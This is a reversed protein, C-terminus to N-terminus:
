RLRCSVNIKTKRDVQYANTVIILTGFRQVALAIIGTYNGGFGPLFTNTL